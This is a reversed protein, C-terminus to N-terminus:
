QQVQGPSILKAECDSALPCSFGVCMVYTRLFLTSFTSATQQPSHPLGVTTVDSSPRSTQSTAPEHSSVDYSSHDTPPFLKGADWLLELVSGMVTLLFFWMGTTACLARRGPGEEEGAEDAVKEEQSERAKESSKHVPHYRQDFHEM